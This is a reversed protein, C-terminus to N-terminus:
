PLFLRGTPGLRAAAGALFREMLEWWREGGSSRLRELRIQEPAAIRRRRIEREVMEAPAVPPVFWVLDFDGEIGEFLDCRADLTLGNRRATELAHAVLAEAVDTAVLDLPWRSLAWLALVAYPGTGVELARM